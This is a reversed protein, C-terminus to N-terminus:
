ENKKAEEERRKSYLLDTTYRMHTEKFAVVFRRILEADSDGYLKKWSDALLVLMIIPALGTFFETVRAQAPDVEIGLAEYAQSQWVEDALHRLIVDRRETDKLLEMVVISLLEKRDRMFALFGRLLEDADQPSELVKAMLEAPNGLRTGIDQIAIHLLALLMEEKSKFYYYILAKNVGAARAIEDVRAGDFGKQAFIAQAASLIREKSSAEPVLLDDVAKM